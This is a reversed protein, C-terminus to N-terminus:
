ARSAHGAKRYVATTTDSPTCAFLEALNRRCRHYEQVAQAKRGCLIHCTMIRQYLEERGPDIDRARTLLDLAQDYQGHKELESGLTLGWSSFASQLEHRLSLARPLDYGEGQLFPGSHLRAAKQFLEASLHLVEDPPEACWTSGLRNFIGQLAEVDVWCVRPNLALRGQHVLVADKRGLLRRLRQLTTTLASVASDGPSDPWLADCLDEKSADGGMAILGKLLEIPRQPAKGSFVLPEGKVLVLFRGMTLIKVPWPWDGFDSLPKEPLLDRRQILERVYSPVIDEELARAFLRAMTKPRWFYCNIYGHPKALELAERLKQAAERERGGDLAFEAEALLYAFGIFPNAEVAGAERGAELTERAKEPKGRTHEVLALGLHCVGLGEHEGAAAAHKVALGSHESARPIDDQLLAAWTSIAYFYAKEWSRGFDIERSADKLIAGATNVDGATLAAAAGHVRLFPRFVPIGSEAALALGQASSEMCRASRALKWFLYSELVRYMIKFLPPAEPAQVWAEMTGLLEEVQSFRGQILRAFGLTLLSQLRSPGDLTEEGLERCRELLGEFAPHLPNRLALATVMSAMVKSEVQTSPFQPDGEMLDEVEALWEDMPHFTGFVYLHADVLGSWSLLAGTRDECAKFAQFSSLFVEKAEAPQYPSLCVGLWYLLWPDKELETRPLQNLWHGLTQIRGESFLSSANIKLVR